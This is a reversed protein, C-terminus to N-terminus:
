ESSCKTIRCGSASPRRRSHIILRSIPAAAVQRGLPRVRRSRVLEEQRHLAHLSQRVPPILAAEV